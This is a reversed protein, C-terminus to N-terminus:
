KQGKGVFGISPGGDRNMVRRVPVTYEPFADEHFEFGLKQLVGKIDPPQWDDPKVWKGDERRRGGPGFKALNSRDVEELLRMPQSLMYHLAALIESELQYLTEEVGLWTDTTTANDDVFMELDSVRIRRGFGDNEGCKEEPCRFVGGLRTIAHLAAIIINLFLSTDSGGVAKHRIAMAQGTNEASHSLEYGSGYALLSGVTVVSLDALGDLFEILDDAYRLREDLSTFIVNYIHDYKKVSEHDPGLVQRKAEHVKASQVEHLLLNRVTYGTIVPSRQAFRHPVYISLNSYKAAAATEKLEEWILNCRLRHTGIDPIIPSGPPEQGAKVMFKAVRDVHANFEADTTFGAFGLNALVDPQKGGVSVM